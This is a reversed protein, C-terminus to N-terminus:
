PVRRIQVSRVVKTEPSRIDSLIVVLDDEKILDRRKLLSFTRQVNEEPDQVDGRPGHSLSVHMRANKTFKGQM